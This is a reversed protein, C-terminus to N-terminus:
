TALFLQKKSREEISSTVIRVEVIAGEQVLNHKYKVAIM